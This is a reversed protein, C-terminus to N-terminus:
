NDAPYLAARCCPISWVDLVIHVCSTCEARLSIKSWSSLGIAFKASFFSCKLARPSMSQCAERGGDNVLTAASPSFIQFTAGDRNMKLPRPARMASELSAPLDVEDLLVDAM